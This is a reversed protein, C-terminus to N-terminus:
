AGGADGLLRDFNQQDREARRRSALLVNAAEAEADGGIAMWAILVQELQADTLGLEGRRQWCILACARVANRDIDDLPRNSSTDAV